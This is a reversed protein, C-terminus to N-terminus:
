VSGDPLVLRRQRAERQLIHAVAPAELIRLKVSGTLLVHVEVLFGEQAAQDVAGVAGEEEEEDRPGGHLVRDPVVAFVDGVILGEGNQQLRTQQHDDADLHPRM